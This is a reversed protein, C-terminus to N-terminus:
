AGAGVWEFHGGYPRLWRGGWTFGHRAMAKVLRQDTVPRRGPPNAAVNLAVAIGWAHRSLRGDGERQLRRSWCGGRRQFDAVDVLGGLRQRQLDAMAAALDDIVLRHCSVRGLLPLDRTVINARTWAPDQQGRHLSPVAFEGFRVKVLGLPLGGNGGRLFQQDDPDRFRIARGLLLGRMAVEFDQRPGRPKVLLYSATSIGYRRALDSDMAAEYGGLLVDDVVGGVRLPRHGALRLLGGAQLHRLQAGTRSLVVGKELQGTLKAGPRGVAAAYAGPDVAMAEMPVARYGRRTSAVPLQRTRVASITAVRTSDRVLGVERETFGGFAWILVQGRFAGLGTAQAGAVRMGAQNPGAGAPGSWRAVFVVWGAVFVALGTLIALARGRATM